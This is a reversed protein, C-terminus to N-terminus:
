YNPIQDLGKGLGYGIGGTIFQDIVIDLGRYGTNAISTPFLLIGVTGNIVRKGNNWSLTGNELAERKFGNKFTFGYAYHPDYKGPYWRGYGAWGKNYKFDLYMGQFGGHFSAILGTSTYTIGDVTSELYNIYGNLVRGSQSKEIATLYATMEEEHLAAKQSRFLM